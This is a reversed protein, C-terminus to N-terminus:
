DQSRNVAIQLHQPFIALDQFQVISFALAVIIAIGRGMIMQTHSFHPRM